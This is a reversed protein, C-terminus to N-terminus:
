PNRARWASTLEVRQLPTPHDDLLLHVWGPPSPDQLSTRVLGVFLNRAAAADRTGNLGIWDAESEYRRSIVNRVPLLALQAVLIVLLALPVAEPRRLDAVLAAAALVPLVLLAFWATGRLVHRRAVHGLEHGVVFRVQDRSFRGDLLTNWIVVTATPGLGIAFANADSTRSSVDDVRVVPHGAHERQELVRIDSRLAASRVRHTGISALYPSGLQLVFLIAALIPGAALWWRRGLRRALLVVLALAVFAVASMGLLAACARLLVPAYGEHSIGHRREWWNTVIAFPLGAAWAATLTLLGLVIGSNVPRLGIQDALRRRRRVVAAYATIVALTAVVWNWDLVREFRRARHVLRPGFSTGEDIHPLHLHAPVTTRWLLLALYVWIAAGATLTAGRVIRTATM